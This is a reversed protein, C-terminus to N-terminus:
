IGTTTLVNSLVRIAKEDLRATAGNMAREANRAARTDGRVITMHQAHTNAAQLVGLGTGRWPAVREDATWLARLEGRTREVTNAKRTTEAGAKPEPVYAALWRNWDAESVKVGALRALREDTADGIRHVLALTDAAAKVRPLSNSTHRIKMGSEAMESRIIQLVNECILATSGTGYQTAFSGDLSTIATVFPAHELGATTHTDEAEIQVFGVRGGRLLGAGSVTLGAGVMPRLNDLLTDRYDHRAYSITPVHLVEHTESHILTKRTADTVRTVGEATLVTSEVTGELVDWGFLGTALTDLTMGDVIQGGYVPGRTRLITSTSM